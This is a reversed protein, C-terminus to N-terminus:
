GLCWITVESGPPLGTGPSPNQFGVRGRDGIDVNVEFGADELIRVAHECRRGEVDPVETVPPGESVELTVTDGPELGSGGGPDQNIVEGAPRDSEVDVIRAELDRQHLEATAANVQQGILGPVEIPAPGRSVVMTVRAGRDVETSVEPEVSLVRGEPVTNSYAPDGEVAALGLEEFQRAAVDAPTGIVDPVAIVETGLSLTLVVTGGRVVRRHGAPDQALVHGEAVDDSHRPDAFEVSLGAREAEAVAEQQPMALLDPAPTWRGIGFWWGGLLVLLVLATGGAVLATRRHSTAAKGRDVRRGGPGTTARRQQGNQQPAWAPAPQPKPSPLRSWSPRETAPVARMVVTSDAAQKRVATATVQERVVTTEALLAGADTPRGGPQRRTARAVLENLAAPLGAACTSPAPVDRQVHQWAVEAPSGEEYPVRGTLMEFLVIGSSYVDSRADARGDSVLEPAVYAVTAMLGGGDGDDTSAQVAQALGFDAVKVVSDVLNAAGGSPSEAVLVNEPKIDRHVLGARHAAAIAALMQEAIALAEVPTLRRRSSLVERLTSGPVYEMVLYPLGDHTGQDYVTVVNPHTLQAVTKAEGIFRELFHGEAAQTPHVIKLAVTRELREDTATYVTAMGGRAVRSRIRYRGDVLTGLLSDAVQTDM